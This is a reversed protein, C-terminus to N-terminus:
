YDWVPLSPPSVHASNDSTAPPKATISQSPINQVSLHVDSLQKPEAPDACVQVQPRAINSLSSCAPIREPQTRSSQTFPQTAPTSPASELAGSNDCSKSCATCGDTATHANSPPCHSHPAAPNCLPPEVSPTVHIEPQVVADLVSPTSTPMSIISGPSVVLLSTPVAQPMTTQPLTSHQLAALAASPAAALSPPPIIHMHANSSTPTKLYTSQLLPPHTHCLLDQAQHHSMAHTPIGPTATVEQYAKISGDITYVPVFRSTMNGATHTSMNSHQLGRSDEQSAIPKQNGHKAGNPPGGNKFLQVLKSLFSM